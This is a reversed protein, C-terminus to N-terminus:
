NPLDEFFTALKENSIVMQDSPKNIRYEKCLRFEEEVARAESAININNALDSFYDNKLRDHLKKVSANLERLHSPDKCLRRETHLLLLDDSIWPPVKSSSINKPIM